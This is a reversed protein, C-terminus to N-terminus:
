ANNRRKRVCSSCEGTNCEIGPGGYFTMEQAQKLVGCCTCKVWRRNFKDRLIETSLPDFSNKMREEETNLEESLDQQPTHDTPALLPLPSPHGNSCSQRSTTKERRQQIREDNRQRIEMIKEHLAPLKSGALALCLCNPSKALNYECYACNIWRASYKGKYWGIHIPCEYGSGWKKPTAAMSLYYERRKDELTSRIWSQGLKGDTWIETLHTPTFFEEEKVNPFHCLLVSYNYTRGEKAFTLLDDESYYIGFELLLRLQSSRTVIILKPPYQGAECSFTVNDLTIYQACKLLEPERISNLYLYIPPLYFSATKSIIEACAKYIAIEDAYMCDYNSVHAFHHRRIKGKRAELATGCATCNCACEMGSPVESIHKLSGTKQEIGYYINHASKKKVNQEM